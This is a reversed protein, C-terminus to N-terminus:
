VQSDENYATIVALVDEISVADGDITGGENYATLADLAEGIEIQGSGDADFRALDSTGNNNGSEEVTLTWTDSTADETQVNWSYDGETDPATVDFTVTTNQDGSLEVSESAVVSGDFVFEVDKTGLEDGVNEVTVDVSVTDGPAVSVNAAPDVNTIDFEAVQPTVGIIAIDGDNTGASLDTFTRTETEGNFEAEVIYDEGSQLRQGDVESITYSGEDGATVSTLPDSLDTDDGAFLTVTAGPLNQSDENVVDGTIAAPGFVNIEAEDSGSTANIEGLDNETEASVNTTGDAASAATFTTTAQGDEVTLTTEALSGQTDDTLSVTVEKGDEVTDSSWEGQRDIPRKEVTVTVERSEDQAVDTSKVLAGEADEVEIDMRYEFDVDEEFINVNQEAQKLTGDSVDQWESTNVTAEFAVFQGVNQDTMNLNNYAEESAVAYLRIDTNVTENLAIGDIMYGGEASTKVLFADGEANVFTDQIFELSQNSQGEYAAWLTVDEMDLDEPTRVDGTLVDNGELVYDVSATDTLTTSENTAEADFLYTGIPDDGLSQLREATANDATVEFTTYSVEGANVDGVSEDISATNSGSITVTTSRDIADNNIFDGSSNVADNFALNVDLSGSISENIQNQTIVAFEATNDSNGDALLTANSKDTLDDARVIEIGQADLNSILTPSVTEEVNNEHLLAGRNDAQFTEQNARVIYQVGTNQDNGIALDTFRIFNGDNGGSAVGRDVLNTPDVSNIYLSVNADEIPNGNDNTVEAEVAGRIDSGGIFFPAEAGDQFTNATDNNLVYVGHYVDESQNINNATYNYYSNPTFEVTFSDGSALETQNDYAIEVEPSGAEVNGSNNAAGLTVNVEQASAGVNEITAEITIDSANPAVRPASLDTVLVQEVDLSENATALTGTSITDTQNVSVNYTGTELGTTNLGDFAVDIPDTETEFTSNDVTVNPETSDYQGNDDVDIWVQVDTSNDSVNVTGSANTGETVTDSDLDITDAQGTNVAAAASGAFAATAAFVSLVM